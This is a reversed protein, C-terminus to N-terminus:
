YYRANKECFIDYAKDYVKWFGRKVAMSEGRVLIVRKSASSEVYRLNVMCSRSIRVFDADELLEGMDKLSSRVLHHSGDEMFLNCYERESCIRIVERSSYKGDILIEKGMLTVAHQLKDPLRTELWNKPVFAVVNIGFADPMREDHSTVFIIMTKSSQYQLHNMLALGSMEPMEIDLILLDIPKESDLVERANEVEWIECPIESKEFYKVCINHIIKRERKEDDCICINM